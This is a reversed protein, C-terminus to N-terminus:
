GIFAATGVTSAGEILFERIRDAVKPSAGFRGQLINEFQPRSVGVRAAVDGHRQNRRRIEHRLAKCVEPPAIGGSWGLVTEAPVALSDGGFFDRQRQEPFFVCVFGVAPGLSAFGGSLSGGGYQPLSKPYDKSIAINNGVSKQLAEAMSELLDGKSKEPVVYSDHIPLAVVGRAMLRLLLGETMESDRRMLALGAGSAFMHAIAPHKAKIDRVLAQAKAYAGEGGIENAISRQAALPTDANVLTNFGVKVLDRPWGALDYPDGDM